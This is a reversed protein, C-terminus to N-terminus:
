EERDMEMLYDELEKELTSVAGQPSDFQMDELDALFDFVTDNQGLGEEIEELESCIDTGINQIMEKLMYIEKVKNKISDTLIM